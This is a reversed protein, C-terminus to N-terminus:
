NEAGLNNLSYQVPVKCIKAKYKGSAQDSELVVKALPDSLGYRLEAYFVGNNKAVEKRKRDFKMVDKRGQTHLFEVKYKRIDKNELDLYLYYDFSTMAKGALGTFLMTDGKELTGSNEAMVNEGQCEGYLAPIIERFTEDQDLGYHGGLEWVILKPKMQHYKGTLVYNSIAGSFAGGAISENTFDVSSYEKLFGIFNAYSPDPHTSNSTGLLVAEPKVADGMLDGGGASPEVNYVAPLTERKVDQGCVDEIFELFRDNAEDDEGPEHSSVEFDQKPLQAYVPSQKLADAVRQASFKAGAATWHNDRILFYDKVKDVGSMDAMIIGSSKMDEIMKLFGVMAKEHNYEESYPPLLSDYGVLGRTPIMIVALNTGHYKFAQALRAFSIKSWESLEFDDKLDMKTRFIWGNKGAIIYKLSNKKKKKYIEEDSLGDCLPIVGENDSASVSSPRVYILACCIM